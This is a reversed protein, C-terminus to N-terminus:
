ISIPGIEPTATACSTALYMPKRAATGWLLPVFEASEFSAEPVEDGLAKRRRPRADTRYREREM